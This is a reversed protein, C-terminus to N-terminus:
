RPRERKEKMDPSIDGSTTTSAHQVRDHNLKQQEQLHSRETYQNPPTMHVARIHTAQSLTTPQQQLGSSAHESEEGLLERLHKQKIQKIETEGIADDPDPGNRTATLYGPGKKSSKDHKHINDELVPAKPPWAKLGTQPESMNEAEEERDSYDEETDTSSDREDEPAEQTVPLHVCWVPDGDPVPGLDWNSAFEEAEDANTPDHLLLDKIFDEFDSIEDNKKVSFLSKLAPVLNNVRATAVYLTPPVPKM